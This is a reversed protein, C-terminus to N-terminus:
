RRVFFTSFVRCSPLTRLHRFLSARAEATFPIYQIYLSHVVTCVGKFAGFSWAEGTAAGPFRFAAESKGFNEDQTGAHRYQYPNATAEGPPVM